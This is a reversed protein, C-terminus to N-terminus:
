GTEMVHIAPIETVGNRLYWHLRHWGDQVGEDDCLIVPWMGALHGRYNADDETKWYCEHYADWDPHETRMDNIPANWCLRKMEEAPVLMYVFALEDAFGPRDGDFTMYRTLADRASLQLAHFPVPDGGHRDMLAQYESGGAM